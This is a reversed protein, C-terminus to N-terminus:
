YVMAVWATRATVAVYVSFKMQNVLETGFNLSGMLFCKHCVSDVIVEEVTNVSDNGATWYWIHITFHMDLFCLEQKGNQPSAPLGALPLWSNSTCDGWKVVPESVDVHFSLYVEPIRSPRSLSFLPPLTFELELCFPLDSLVAKEIIKTKAEEKAASQLLKRLNVQQYFLKSFQKLSDNWAKMSNWHLKNHMKARCQTLSNQEFVFM